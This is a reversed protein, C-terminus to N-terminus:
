RARTRVREEREAESPLPDEQQRGEQRSTSKETCRREDSGGAKPGEEDSLVLESAKRDRKGQHRMADNIGGHWPYTSLTDDTANPFMSEEDLLAFLGLPKELHLALLRRCSFLM